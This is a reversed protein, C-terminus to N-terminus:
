PRKVADRVASRDKDRLRKSDFIVAVSEEKNASPRIPM